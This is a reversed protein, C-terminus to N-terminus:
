KDATYVEELISNEIKSGYARNAKEIAVKTGHHMFALADFYGGAGAHDADAHTIYIRKLKKLNGLGYNQLMNLVDQYYIGFGTDIMVMERPSNFLFINGGCPLQFCFLEIDKTVEVRQVDAYFKEGTTQKLAESTLLISEFAQKPDQDLNTLEQVIHNIDHLLRLLFEDEAEGIIKRLRQAFTVYFVTDDLNKGTTDYELIELRYRSKLQNLLKDVLSSNELTLGATLREPHKGKDDFDM